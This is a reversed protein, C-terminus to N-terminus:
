SDSEAEEDEDEEKEREITEEYIPFFNDNRKPLEQKEDVKVDASDVLKKLRKNYCKYAKSKTSYGLFIGEDARDEFKKLNDKTRKIYCKSGFVKFHREIAKRGFWMQYPTRNKSPRLMCRNHIYVIRHAVEKWLRGVAKSEILYTRPMEQM